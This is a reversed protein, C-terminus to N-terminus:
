IVDSNVENLKSIASNEDSFIYSYDTYVHRLNIGNECYEVDYTFESGDYTIFKVVGKIMKYKIPAHRHYTLPRTVVYVVQDIKYTPVLVGKDDLVRSLSESADKSDGSCERLTSLIREYNSSM